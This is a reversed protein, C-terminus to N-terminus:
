SKQHWLYEDSEADNLKDEEVFSPCVAGIKKNSTLCKMMNSVATKSLVNETMLFLVDKGEVLQYIVSPANTQHKYNIVKVNKDALDDFYKAVKEGADDNFLVYECRLEEPVADNLFKLCKEVQEVDTNAMVAVSLDYRYRGKDTEPAPYFEKMQNNYYGFMADSDPYCGGWFLLDVYAEGIEPILENKVLRFSAAKDESDLRGLTALANDLLLNVKMAPGEIVLATFNGKLNLLTQMTRVFEDKQESDNSIM